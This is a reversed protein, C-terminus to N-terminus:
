LGELMELEQQLRRIEATIGQKQGALWEEAGVSRTKRPQERDLAHFRM